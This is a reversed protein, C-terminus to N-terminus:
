GGVDPFRAMLRALQDGVVPEVADDHLAAALEAPTAHWFDDPLWGLLRAALGALQSARDGFTM